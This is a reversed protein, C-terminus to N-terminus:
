IEHQAGEPLNREARYQRCARTRLILSVHSLSLHYILAIKRLGMGSARLKEIEADRTALDAKFQRPPIGKRANRSRSIV